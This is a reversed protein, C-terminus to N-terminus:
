EALRELVEGSGLVRGAIGGGRRGVAAGENASTAVMVRRALRQHLEVETNEETNVPVARFADAEEALSGDEGGVKPGSAGGENL